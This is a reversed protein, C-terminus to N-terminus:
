GRGSRADQLPPCWLACERASSGLSIERSFSVRGATALWAFGTMLLSFILAVPLEGPLVELAMASAGPGTIMVTFRCATSR